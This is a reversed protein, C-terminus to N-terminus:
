PEDRGIVGKDIWHQRLSEGTSDGMEDNMEDVVRDEREKAPNQVRPSFALDGITFNAILIIDPNMDDPDRPALAFERMYLGLPDARAAMQERLTTLKEGLNDPREPMMVMGGGLWM